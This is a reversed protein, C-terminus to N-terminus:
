MSKGAWFVTSRRPSGAEKEEKQLRRTWHEIAVCREADAKHRKYRSVGIGIRCRILMRAIERLLGHCVVPMVCVVQHEDAIREVVQRNSGVHCQDVQPPAESALCPVSNLTRVHNIMGEVTHNARASQSQWRDVMLVLDDVGM